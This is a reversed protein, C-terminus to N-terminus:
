YHHGRWCDRGRVATVHESQAITEGNFIARM